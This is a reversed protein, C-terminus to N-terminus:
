FWAPPRVSFLIFMSRRLFEKDLEDFGWKALCGTFTCTFFNKFSNYIFVQTINQWSHQRNKLRRQPCPNWWVSSVNFKTFFEPTSSYTVPEKWSLSQQRHVLTCTSWCLIYNGVTNTSSSSGRLLLLFKLFAPLSPTFSPDGTFMRM